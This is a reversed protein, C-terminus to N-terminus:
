KMEVYIQISNPAGSGATAPSYAQAQVKASELGAVSGLATAVAQARAQSRAEQSPYRGRLASGDLPGIVQVRTSDYQKVRPALKRLDALSAPSLSDDDAFDAKYRLRLPAAKLAPQTPAAAPQPAPVATPVATPAPAAAQAPAPAQAQAPATAPAPAQAAAQAPATPTVPAAAQAPVATPVVQATPAAVPTPRAASADAVLATTTSPKMWAPSLATDDTLPKVDTGTPDSSVLMWRGHEGRQTSFVLRNYTPSFVASSSAKDKTIVDVDALPVDTTALVQVVDSEDGQSRTLVIHRGDKSWRPHGVSHAVLDTIQWTDRSNLDAVWLDYKGRTGNVYALSKGDPAFAPAWSAGDGVLTEANYGSADMVWLNGNHSYAIRKGDPSIAPSNGLRLNKMPPQAPENIDTLLILRGDLGVRVLNQTGDPRSLWAVFHTGDPAPVPFWLGQGRPPSALVRTQSGDWNTGLLQGMRTFAIIDSVPPPTPTPTPTPRPPPEPKKCGVLAAAFLGALL